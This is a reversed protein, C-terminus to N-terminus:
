CYWKLWGLNANLALPNVSSQLEVARRETKVFIVVLLMIYISNTSKLEANLVIEGMLQIPFSLVTIKLVVSQLQLSFKM